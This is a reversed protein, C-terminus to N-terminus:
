KLGLNIFYVVIEEAFTLSFVAVVIHCGWWPAQLAQPRHAHSCIVEHFHNLFKTIYLSFIINNFISVLARYHLGQRDM